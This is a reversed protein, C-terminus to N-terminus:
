APHGVPLLYLPDLETVLGLVGNIAEDEFAAVPVTGLSLATCELCINQAVHGAELHVYRVARNGYRRACRQYVAAIVLVVPARAICTQALAAAALQARIDGSLHRELTHERPLYRYVGSELGEVAGAVLLLELPYLAGASPATRLGSPHSIGQGAWLLRACHELMLPKPAYSRVSRRQRLLSEYASPTQLWQEPLRIRANM